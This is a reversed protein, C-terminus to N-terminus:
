SQKQNTGWHQHRGSPSVGIPSQAVEGVQVVSAVVGVAGGVTAAIAHPPAPGGVVVVPLLLKSEAGHGTLELLWFQYM